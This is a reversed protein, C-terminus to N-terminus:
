AVVSPSVEEMTKKIKRLTRWGKWLMFLFIMHVIVELWDGIWLMVLADITYAIMGIVYAWGHGRSSLYGVLAVMGAIFANIFFGIANIIFATGMGGGASEVIAMAIYTIVTTIGLSGYFGVKFIFLISNLLSIGAIYYFFGPGDTEFINKKPPPTIPLSQQFQPSQQNDQM